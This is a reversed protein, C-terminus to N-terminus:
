FTSDMIWPDGTEDSIYKIPIGYKSSFYDKVVEMSEQPTLSMFTSIKKPLSLDEVWLNLGLNRHFPTYNKDYGNREVNYNGHYFYIYGNDAVYMKFTDGYILYVIRDIISNLKSQPIEYIM